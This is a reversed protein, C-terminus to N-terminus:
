APLAAQEEGNKANTKQTLKFKSIRYAQGFFHYMVAMAIPSVFFIGIFCLMMGAMSLAYSAIYGLFSAALLIWFNARLLALVLRINFAQSIERSELYQGSILPLLTYMLFSVLMMVPMVLLPFFSSIITFLIMINSSDNSLFPFLPFLVFPLMFMFYVLTFPLFWIFGVLMMKLGEIFYDGLEKWEPLPVDIEGEQVRRQIELVWGYVAPSGIITLSLV